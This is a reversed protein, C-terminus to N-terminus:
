GPTFRVPTRARAQAASALGLETVAGIVPYGGTTPHDNPSSSWADTRPSRCRGSCWARPPCNVPGRGSRRPGETRPGVRNSHPSVRYTASFLACLAAAAFWDARPGPRPPM